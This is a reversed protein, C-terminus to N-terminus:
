AKAPKAKAKTLIAFANAKEPTDIEEPRQLRECKCRYRSSTKPRKYRHFTKKCAPCTTQWDGPQVVTEPSHDGCLLPRYKLVM